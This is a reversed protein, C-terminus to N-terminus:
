KTGLCLDAVPALRRHPQIQRQAFRSVGMQEATRNSRGKEGAKLNAPLRFSWRRSHGGSPPIIRGGTCRLGTACRTVVFSSVPEMAAQLRRLGSIFLCWFGVSVSSYARWKPIPLGFRTTRLRLPCIRRTVSDNLRIGLSTPTSIVGGSPSLRLPSSGKLSPCHRMCRAAIHQRSPRHSGFRFCM